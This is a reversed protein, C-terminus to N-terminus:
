GTIECLRGVQILLDNLEVAGPDSNYLALCLEVRELAEAMSYLCEVHARAAARTEAVGAPSLTGSALDDLCAAAAKIHETM